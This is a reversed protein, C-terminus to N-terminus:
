QNIPQKVKDSEKLYIYALGVVCVIVELAHAFVGFSSDISMNCYLILYAILDLTISHNSLVSFFCTTSNFGFLLTIIGSAALGAPL